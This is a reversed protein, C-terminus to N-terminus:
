KRILGTLQPLRGRIRALGEELPRTTDLVLHESENLEEVAEWGQAFADLLEERGDSISPGLARERLRRKLTEVDARCELFLFGAGQNHAAERLAERHKRSRFSADVLISRGTSLVTRALRFIERYVRSTMEPAYSGKEIEDALRQTPHARLLHKRTRDSSLVPAAMELGLRTALTSKGSAMLGGVAVLVPPTLNRRLTALALLFYRRAEEEARLRAAPQIEDDAATLLAVKGRVCARYSEYFDVVRYLDFDQSAEVYAALFLESLDVRGHAALDMSLFAIDAAVDGCRYRENFEICDLISANGTEDLYIQGLRLDGHGDRVHGQHIREAFLGANDRLFASQRNELELAQEESLVTSLKARVADFNARVNEAVAGVTGFAATHADSRARSHFDALKRALSELQSKTLHGDALRRDLRHSDPLRQMLVAWDVTRGKGAFAHRGAEDRTIPIVGVYVEPALRRNLAVEAECAIHRKESTSFDLFGFNVPKKLKWVERAGLLVRSIHTEELQMGPQKLDELLRGM